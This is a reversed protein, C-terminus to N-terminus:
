PREKAARALLWERANRSPDEVVAAIQEAAQDNKIQEILVDDAYIIGDVRM